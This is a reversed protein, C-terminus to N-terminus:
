GSADGSTVMRAFRLADAGAHGLATNDFIVWTATASGRVQRAVDELFDDPYKSYYIRPAGHLRVYRIGGWGGSDGAGPVPAPDAAVRAIRHRILLQEAPETFWTAHRPELVVNGRFRSRMLSFFDSALGPDYAFSPPLQVLVPGLKSGLSTAESLFRDLPEEVDVFRRKHTIEKPLKVSFRFDAPVCAAWRAYTTPRHPRYFSSNIEVANLRQAYRELHTGHAPFLATCERPITWGATGIYLLM